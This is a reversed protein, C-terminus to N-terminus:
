FEDKYKNSIVSSLDVKQEQYIQGAFFSTIFMELELANRVRYKLYYFLSERFTDIGQRTDTFINSLGNLEKRNDQYCNLFDMIYAYVYRENAFILEREPSLIQIPKRRLLWYSIYSYIKISNIHEIPHLAKIRQIDEFYDVLAYGLVLPNVIMKKSYGSKEIYANMNELQAEFRDKFKNNHLICNKVTRDAYVLETRINDM